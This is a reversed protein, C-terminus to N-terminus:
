EGEQNRRARQKKADAGYNELLAFSVAGKMALTDDVDLPLGSEEVEKLTRFVKAFKLQNEAILHDDRGGYSAQLTLNEPIESRRRLWFTISKTFAWFIVEPRSRCVSLWADFYAQNFFDGGGHIRVHSASKPLAVSIMSVMEDFSKRRLEDFNIWRVGRVAPYREVVAAYCKFEQKSGNTQKGTYRDATTLCAEAFPCSHGAPLNFEWVPFKYYGKKIKTFKIM